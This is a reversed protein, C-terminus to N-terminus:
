TCYLIPRKGAPLAALAGKPDRELEDLPLSIAGQARLARWSSASRVDVLIARGAVVEAHAADVDIRPVADGGVGASGGGAPAAGSAGSTRIRIGCGALAPAVMALPLGALAGSRLAARRGFTTGKM